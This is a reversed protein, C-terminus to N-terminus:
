SNPCERTASRYLIGTRLMVSKVKSPDGLDPSLRGTGDGLKEDCDGTWDYAQRQCGKEIRHLRQYAANL